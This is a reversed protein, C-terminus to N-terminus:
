ITGGDFDFPSGVYTDTIGGGDVLDVTGGGGGAEVARLRAEVSGAAPSTNAGLKAQTAALGEALLRHWQSHKKGSQPAGLPDFTPVAAPFTLDDLAGPFTTM